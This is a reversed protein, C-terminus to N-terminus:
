LNIFFSKLIPKIYKNVKPIKPIPPRRVSAGTPATKGFLYFLYRVAACLHANFHGTEPCAEVVCKVGKGSVSSYGEEAAGTMGIKGYVIIVLYVCLANGEDSSMSHGTRFVLTTLAPPGLGVIYFGIETKELSASQNHAVKHSFIM